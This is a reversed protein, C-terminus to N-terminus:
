VLVVVVLAVGDVVLLIVTCVRLPDVALIVFDVKYDYLMKVM